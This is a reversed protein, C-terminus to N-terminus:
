VKLGQQGSMLQRFADSVLPEDSSHFCQWIFKNLIDESRQSLMQNIRQDVFTIKGSEDLRMTFQDPEQGEQKVVPMSSVQLRAVGVLCSSQTSEIGVPPTNKIYGTCHMTVYTQGNHTFLPRRNRLRHLPEINGSFIRLTHCTKSSFNKKRNGV